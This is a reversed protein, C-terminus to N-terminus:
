FSELAAQVERVLSEYTPPEQSGVESDLSAPGNLEHKANSFEQICFEHLKREIPTSLSTERQFYEVQSFLVDAEKPMGQKILALVTCLAASMDDALKEDSAPETLLALISDKAARFNGQVTDRIAEAIKDLTPKFTLGLEQRIKDARGLAEWAEEQRDLVILCLALGGTVQVILKKYGYRLSIELGLNFYELAGKVDGKFYRVIGVAHSSHVEGWSNKMRKDLEICQEFLEQAASFNERRYHNIALNHLPFRAGNVDGLDHRIQLSEVYCLEAEDLRGSQTFVLGLNSLTMAVGAQNGLGRRIKLSETYLDQAKERDKLYYSATGFHHLTLSVLEPDNLEVAVKHAHEVFKKAQSHKGLRLLLSTCGVKAYIQLTRDQCSEALNDMKQYAAFGREHGGEIVHFKALHKAFPLLENPQNNSLGVSIARYINEIELHFFSLAQVEGKVGFKAGELRVLKSFYRCHSLEIAKHNSSEALKTRLFEGLAADAIVYRLQSDVLVNSIWNKESLKKMELWQLEEDEEWSSLRIGTTKKKSGVLVARVADSTFSGSFSAMVLLLERQGEDLMQWSWECCARISRHRDEMGQSEEHIQLQHQLRALLEPLTFRDMWSGALAVALPIGEMVQCIEMAIPLTAPQLAFKPNVAVARNVFLLIADPIDQGSMEHEQEPLDDLPEKGLPSLKYRVEGKIRLPERSSVLVKLSAVNTLLDEVFKGGSIVHEFNDFYLLINKEQLFYQIQTAPTGDGGLRLGIADATAQPIGEPDDLNVLRIVFVGDHFMDLLDACIQVALRSKGYGGPGLISIFQRDGTILGTIEGLEKERGYMASPQSRLNNPACAMTSLPDFKSAASQSSDIQYLYLPVTLDRLRQSGLITTLVNPPLERIDDLLAKSALLQFPQSAQCIRYARSFPHLNRAKETISNEFAHLAIHINLQMGTAMVFEKKLAPVLEIGCALCDDPSEFTGRYGWTSAKSFEGGQKEVLGKIIEGQRQLLGVRLEVPMENLLADYYSETRVM